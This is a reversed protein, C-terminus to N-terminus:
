AQEGSDQPLYGRPTVIKPGAPTEQIYTQSNGIFVTSFMDVLEEDLDALTTVITQEGPRGINKVIGVPTQGVQEGEKHEM